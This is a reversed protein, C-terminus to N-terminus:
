CPYRPQPPRLWWFKSSRLAGVSPDEEDERDPAVLTPLLLKSLSTLPGGEVQPCKSRRKGITSGTLLPTADRRLSPTMRPLSLPPLTVEREM